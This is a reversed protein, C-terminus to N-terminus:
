KMEANEKMERESLKTTVQLNNSSGQSTRKSLTVPNNKSKLKRSFFYYASILAMLIGTNEGAYIGQNAQPTNYTPSPRIIVYSLLSVLLIIFGVVQFFIVFTTKQLLERKIETDKLKHRILILIKGGYWVVVFLQAIIMLAMVAFVGVLAFVYGSFLSSYFIAVLNCCIFALGIIFYYYIQFFRSFFYSVLNTGSVIKMWASLVTELTVAYFFVGYYTVFATGANTLRMTSFMPDVGLQILQALSCLAGALFCLFRVERWRPISTIMMGIAYLFSIAFFCFFVWRNALWSPSNYFVMVLNPNSTVTLITNSPLSFLQLATENTILTISTPYFNVIEGFDEFLEQHFGYNELDWFSSTVITLEPRYIQDTQDLVDKLDACGNSSAESWIVLLIKGDFNAANASNVIQCNSSYELTLFTSTINYSELIEGADVNFYTSGNQLTILGSGGPLLALLLFMILAKHHDNKFDVTEM